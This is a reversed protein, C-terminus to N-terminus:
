IWQHQYAHMINLNQRMSIFFLLLFIIFCSVLVTWLSFLFIVNIGTSNRHTSYFKHVLYGNTMYNQKPITYCAVCKQMRMTKCNLAACLFQNLHLLAYFYFLPLLFIDLDSLRSLFLTCKSDIKKLMQKYQFLNILRHHINKCILVFCIGPWNSQLEVGSKM